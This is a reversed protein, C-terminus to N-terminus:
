RNVDITAGSLENLRMGVPGKELRFRAILERARGLDGVELLCRAQQYPM